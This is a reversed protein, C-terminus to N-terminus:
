KKSTTLPFAIGVYNERTLLNKDPLPNTVRNAGQMVYSGDANRAVVQHLVWQDKLLYHDHRVAFSGMDLPFPKKVTILPKPFAIPDNSHGVAGGPFLHFDFNDEPVLSRCGAMLMTMCAAFVGLGVAIPTFYFLWVRLM